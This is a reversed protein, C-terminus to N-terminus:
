SLSLLKILNRIVRQEESRLVFDLLVKFEDLTDAQDVIIPMVSMGGDCADNLCCIM